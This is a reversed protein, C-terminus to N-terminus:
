MSLKFETRIINENTIEVINKKNIELISTQIQNSM